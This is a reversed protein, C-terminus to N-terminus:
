NKNVKRQGIALCKVTETKVDFITDERLDVLNQKLKQSETPRDAPYHKGIVTWVRGSVASSDQSTPYCPSTGAPIKQWNTFMVSECSFPHDGM